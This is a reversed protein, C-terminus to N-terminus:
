GRRGHSHQSPVPVRGSYGASHQFTRDGPRGSDSDPHPIKLVRCLAPCPLGPHFHFSYYLPASYRLLCNVQQKIYDTKLLNFEPNKAYILCLGGMQYRPVSFALGQLDGLSLTSSLVAFFLMAFILIEQLDILFFFFFVKSSCM